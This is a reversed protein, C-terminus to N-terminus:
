QLDWEKFWGRYTLGDDGEWDVVISDGDVAVVVGPRWGYETNVMVAQGKEFM